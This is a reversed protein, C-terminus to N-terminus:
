AHWDTEDIATRLSQEDTGLKALVDAVQEDRSLALLLDPVDTHTRDDELARAAALMLLRRVRTSVRVRIRDDQEAALPVPAAPTRRGVTDTNQPKTPGPLMRLVEKRAHDLEIDFGLLIRAGLGDDVLLLGLLLHETDVRDSDLSLAERLGLELARKAHSTLPVQGPTPEVGRGEGRVIQDRVRDASLGLSELVRAALGEEERLLGLLLHQDGIQGHSLGRVEEQAFVVVRRARETFREFV